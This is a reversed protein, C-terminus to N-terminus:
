KLLKKSKNAELTIPKDSSRGSMGGGVKINMNYTKHAIKDFQFIIPLYQTIQSIFNFYIVM